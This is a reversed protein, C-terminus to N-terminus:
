GLQSVLPHSPGYFLISTKYSQHLNLVIIVEGNFIIDESLCFRSEQDKKKDLCICLAANAKGVNKRLSTAESRAEQSRNPEVKDMMDFKQLVRSSSYYIM